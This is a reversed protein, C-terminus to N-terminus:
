YRPRVTRVRKATRRQERLLALLAAGAATQEGERWALPTTLEAVVKPLPHRAIRSADVTDLVSGPVIAVGTGSAVCAVIAHYSSLELVRVTALGHDGLWREVVRRYACGAPFAIVTDGAVDQPRVVPKHTSASILVLREAFAPQHVLGPQRPPEAIFAADLRREALAAALRDNTGTQLEVRVDPCRRHFESLIAPLRSATTSELAGLRLTGRPPGGALAGRAEDALRLLKDAYELLRQGGPALQLRQRERIFLEVGLSAELQRIRTTVGSPVRHLRRAAKVIGGEEAVTRFILLDGLDM